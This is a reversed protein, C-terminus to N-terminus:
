RKKRNRKRSDREMKRKLKEQVNRASQSREGPLPIRPGGLALEANYVSMWKQVDEETTMDFGRAQGMMVFAKAIGFNAPNGMEKELRRAAKDDLM